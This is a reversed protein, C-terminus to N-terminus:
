VYTNNMYIGLWVARWNFVRTRALWFACTCNMCVLYVCASKTCLMICVSASYRRTHAHMRRANLAIDDIKRTCEAKKRANESVHRTTCNSCAHATLILNLQVMPTHITTYMHTYPYTHMYTHCIHM